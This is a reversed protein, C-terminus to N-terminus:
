PLNEAAGGNIIRKFEDENVCDQYLTYLQGDSLKIDKYDVILRNLFKGFSLERAVRDIDIESM